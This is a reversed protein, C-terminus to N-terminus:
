RAVLQSTDKMTGLFDLPKREVPADVPAIAQVGFLLLHEEGLGTRAPLRARAREKPGVFNVSGHPAERLRTHISKDDFRTVVIWRSRRHRIRGHESRFASDIPKVDISRVTSEDLLEVLRSAGIAPKIRPQM